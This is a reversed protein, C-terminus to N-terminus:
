WDLESTGEYLFSCDPALGELRCNSFLDRRVEDPHLRDFQCSYFVESGTSIRVVRLKPFRCRIFIMPIPREIELNTLEPFSCDVFASELASGVSFIRCELTANTYSGSFEELKVVASTPDSLDSSLGTM